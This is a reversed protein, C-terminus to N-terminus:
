FAPFLLLFSLSVWGYILTLRDRLGRRVLLSSGVVIIIDKIWRFYTRMVLRIFWGVLLFRNLDVFVVRLVYCFFVRVWYNLRGYFISVILEFLLSTFILLYLNVAVTTVVYDLANPFVQHTPSWEWFGVTCRAYPSPRTPSTLIYPNTRLTYFTWLYITPFTFRLSIIGIIRWCYWGRLV